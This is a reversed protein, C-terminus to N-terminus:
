SVHSQFHDESRKSIIINKENISLRTEKREVSLSNVFGETKRGEKLFCLVRFRSQQWKGDSLGEGGSEGLEM